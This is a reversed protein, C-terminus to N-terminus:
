PWGQVETQDGCKAVRPYYCWGFRRGSFGTRCFHHTAWIERRLKGPSTPFLPRENSGM